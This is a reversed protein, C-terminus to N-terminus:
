RLLVGMIQAAERARALGFDPSFLFLTVRRNMFDILPSAMEQKVALKVEGRVAPMGPGLTELWRADTEALELLDHLQRAASGSYDSSRGEKGDPPCEAM